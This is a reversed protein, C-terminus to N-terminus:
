LRQIDKLRCVNGTKNEHLRQLASGFDEYAIDITLTIHLALSDSQSPGTGEGTHCPSNSITHQCTGSRLCTTNQLKTDVASNLSSVTETRCPDIDYNGEFGVTVTEAPKVDSILIVHM